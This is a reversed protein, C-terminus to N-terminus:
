PMASHGGAGVLVDVSITEQLSDVVDGVGDISESNGSGVKGDGTSGGSDFGEGSGNEVKGEWDSNFIGSLNSSSLSFKSSSVISSGSGGGSGRLLSSLPLSTVSVLFLSGRGSGEGSDKRVGIGTGVSSGGSDSGGKGGRSDGRGVSSSRM